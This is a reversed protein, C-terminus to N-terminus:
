NRITKSGLVTRPLAAVKDIRSPVFQLPLRSRLAKTLAAVDVSEDKAVVELVVQLDEGTELHARADHVSSFELAIAEIEVPHIKDGRINLLHDRRGVIHVRGAQDVYGLDGTPVSEQRAFRIQGDVVGTMYGLMVTSGTISLEGPDAEDGASDISVGPSSIGVFENEQAPEHLRRSCARGAETLGYVDVLEADRCARFIWAQVDSSLMESSSAVTCLSPAGKGVAGRFLRNLGYPVSVLTTASVERLQTMVREPFAVSEGIVLEARALLHSYIQILGYYDFLPVTLLSRSAPGLGLLKANIEAASAIAGDGLCVGKPEGTSGSTFLLARVDQPPVSEYPASSLAWELGGSDGENAVAVPCGM